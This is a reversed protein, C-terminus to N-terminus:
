ATLRREPPVISRGAQLPQAGIDPGALTLDNNGQTGQLVLRGQHIEPNKTRDPAGCIAVCGMILFAPMAKAYIRANNNAAM